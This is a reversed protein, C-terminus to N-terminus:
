LLEAQKLIKRIEETEREDAELMPQACFPEMEMGRLIMAKKIVPIFQQGVGYIAMLQDIKRQCACMGNLDEQRAARAYGAAVEPAFNSLGAICGDGGSLANHGFFEDFGSYIRFETFDKKVKQIMARTHGMDGVTDKLGIINPYRKVLEYVLEPRLDYGTRAPFNYLIINGRIKQAAQGYFNLIGSDPLNMYYPSIVVVARIGKDLAYNSLEVCEDMEMHGTGVYLPVRGAAASVARDILQIKEKKCIAYFEGISGLILIGDMGKEILNEYIRENAELDVHGERDIATVAPTIWRVDM